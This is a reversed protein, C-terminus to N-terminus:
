WDPPPCSCSFPAAYPPSCSLPRASSGLRRRAATQLQRPLQKKIWEWDEDMFRKVWEPNATAMERDSRRFVLNVTVGAIRALERGSELRHESLALRCAPHSGRQCM